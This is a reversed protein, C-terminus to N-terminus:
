GDGALEFLMRIDGPSKLALKRLASARHVEVTRVAIKLRESIATNTLGLSVLEAVERERETLKAIKESAEEGDRLGLSRKVSVTCAEAISALLRENDAPKQVFDFAGERLTAVAMDIDGHGTLFIVPTTMGRENMMEQLRTGSIGPMRVDLILCGPRSPADGRLFADARAYDEVRWGELELVFRLAERLSNDDDVLRVVSRERALELEKPTVIRPRRRNM